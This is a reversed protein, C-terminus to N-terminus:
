PRPYTAIALRAVEAVAGRMDECMDPPLSEFIKCGLSLTISLALTATAVGVPPHHDAITRLIATALEAAATEDANEIILSAAASARPWDKSLAIAFRHVFWEAIALRLEAPMM